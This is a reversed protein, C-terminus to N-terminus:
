PPVRLCIRSRPMAKILANTPCSWSFSFRPRSPPLALQQGWGVVFGFSQLYYLLYRHRSTPPLPSPSLPIPYRVDCPLLLTHGGKPQKKQKETHTRRKIKAKNIRRPMPAVGRRGGGLLLLMPQGTGPTDMEIENSTATTNRAAHVISALRPSLSLPSKECV